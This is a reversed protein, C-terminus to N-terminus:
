RSGCNRVGIMEGGGNRGAVDAGTECCGNPIGVILTISGSKSKKSKSESRSAWACAYVRREVGTATTAEEAQCLYMGKM